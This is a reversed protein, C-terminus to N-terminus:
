YVMLCFRRKFDMIIADYTNIKAALELEQELMQQSTTVGINGHIRGSHTSNANSDESGTSRTNTSDTTVSSRDTKGTAQMVDTNYGTASDLDSGSSQATSGSTQQGTVSRNGQTNDTWTEIRDYNEIPNYQAKEANYLRTWVKQQKASWSRIAMELFDADAYLVELEACEILLNEKLLDLNLGVPIQLGDLITPHVQYM